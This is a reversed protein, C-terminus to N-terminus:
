KKPNVSLTISSALQNIGADTADYVIVSLENSGKEATLLNGLFTQESTITWGKKALESKYFATVEAASAKAALSVVFENNDKVGYVVKSGTFIPVDTPFGTPITGSPLTSLYDDDNTSGNGTSGTGNPVPNFFGPPTMGTGLNNMGPLNLGPIGLGTNRQYLFIAGIIVSCCCCLLLIVAIIIVPKGMGGKKAVTTTKTEQVPTKPAEAEVKTEEAM